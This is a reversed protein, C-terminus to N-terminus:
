QVVKPILFAKQEGRLSRDEATSAKPLKVGEATQPKLNSSTFPLPYFTFPIFYFTILPEGWIEVNEFKWIGLNEFKWM